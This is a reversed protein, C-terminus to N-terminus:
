MYKGYTNGAETNDFEKQAEKDVDYGKRSIDPPNEGGPLRGFEKTDEPGDDLYREETANPEYSYDFRKAQLKWVYHGGMFDVPQITDDKDTVEFVRPTQGLPRDCAEGDIYFIDGALPYIVAPPGWVREFEPIPIYITIEVDSMIGFKTLFATYSTLDVVAKMKRAFHYGSTPDQGYIFNHTNINYKVPQYTITQGFLNAYENVQDRYNKRVMNQQDNCVPVYPSDIVGSQGNVQKYNPDFTFQREPSFSFNPDSYAM